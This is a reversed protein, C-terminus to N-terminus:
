NGGLIADMNFDLLEQLGHYKGVAQVSSINVVNGSDISEDYSSVSIELVRHNGILNEWDNTLVQELTMGQNLLNRQVMNEVSDLFLFMNFASDRRTVETRTDSGQAAFEGHVINQLIPSMWWEPSNGYNRMTKKDISLREISVQVEVQNPILMPDAAFGIGAKAMTGYNTSISIRRALGMSTFRSKMMEEVSFTHSPSRTVVDTMSLTMIQAYPAFRINSM